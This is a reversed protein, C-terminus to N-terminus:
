TFAGCTYCLLPLARFRVPFYGHAERVIGLLLVNFRRNVRGRHMICAGSTVCAFFVRGGFDLGRTRKESKAIKKKNM